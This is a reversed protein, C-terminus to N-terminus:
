IYKRGEIGDLNEIPFKEDEYQNALNGLLMLERGEESNLEPPNQSLEEIRDIVSIYELDTLM